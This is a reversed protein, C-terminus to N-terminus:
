SPLVLECRTQGEKTVVLLKDGNRDAELAVKMLGVGLRVLETMSRKTEKSLNSLDAHSKDSLYFNIRKM